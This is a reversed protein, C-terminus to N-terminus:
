NHWKIMCALKVPSGNKVINKMTSVPQQSQHEPSGSKQELAKGHSKLSPVRDGKPVGHNRFSVSNCGNCM